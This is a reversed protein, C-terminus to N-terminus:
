RKSFSIEIKEWGNTSFDPRRTLGDPDTLAFDKLRSTLQEFVVRSQARALGGGVCFHPGHAFTLHNKANPRRIDFTDPDPFVEPDKNGAGWLPAVMQGAEIAVGGATAGETAIRWSSQVPGDFRLAEEVFNGVLSPDDILDQQVQPHQCLLVMASGIHDTTTRNGGVLMQAILAYIEPETLSRPGAEAGEEDPALEAHVIRSLLDERPNERVEAIRPTIYAQFELISEAVELRQDNDLHGILGWIFHDSWRKFAPMDSRDVGLLDTITTLPQPIAFQTVFECHGDDAFADILEDALERMRPEMARVKAGNLAKSFLARHRTHVPPDAMLLAVPEMPLFKAVQAEVEPSYAEPSVGMMHGTGGFQSSFHASDTALKQLDDYRHVFTAIGPEERVREDQRHLAAYFGFPCQMVEPDTISKPDTTAM